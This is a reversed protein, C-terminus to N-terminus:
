KAASATGGAAAPVQRTVLILEPECVATCRTYSAVCAENRELSRRQIALGDTRVSSESWAASMGGENRPFPNVEELRPRKDLETMKAARSMCKGQEAACTAKCVVPDQVAWAAPAALLGLLTFFLISRNVHKREGLLSRHADRVAAGLETDIFIGICELEAEAMDLCDLVRWRLKIGQPYVSPRVGPIDNKRSCHEM